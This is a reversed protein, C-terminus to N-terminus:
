KVVRRIVFLIGVVLLIPISIYMFGMFALVILVIPCLIISFIIKTIGWAAKVAFIALRGFIIFLLIFFFIMM